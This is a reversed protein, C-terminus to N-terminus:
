VMYFKITKEHFRHHLQMVKYLSSGNIYPMVYYLSTETQFFYDMKALFPHKIDCMIRGETYVKEISNTKLIIDKHIIKIAYHKETNALRAM